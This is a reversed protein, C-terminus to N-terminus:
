DTHSPLFASEESGDVPSWLSPQYGTDAPGVGGDAAVVVRRAAGLHGGVPRLLHLPHVRALHCTGVPAGDPGGGCTPPLVLQYPVDEVGKGFEEEFNDRVKGMETSIQRQVAPLKRLWRYITRKIRTTLPVRHQTANYLSTVLVAAGASGVVLRWPEVDQLYGNVTARPCELLSRLALSSM